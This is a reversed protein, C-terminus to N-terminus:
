ENADGMEYFYTTLSAFSTKEPEKSEYVTCYSGLVHQCFVGALQM